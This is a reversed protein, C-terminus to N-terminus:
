QTLMQTLQEISKYGHSISYKDGAVLMVAPFGKFSLENGSKDKLDDFVFSSFMFNTTEKVPIFRENIIKALAPDTFVDTEMEACTPCFRMSAFVFIPKSSEIARAEKYEHWNVESHHFYPSVVAFLSPILIIAAILLIFPKKM